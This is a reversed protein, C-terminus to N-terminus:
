QLGLVFIIRNKLELMENSFLRHTNAAGEGAIMDLNKLKLRPVMSTFLTVM